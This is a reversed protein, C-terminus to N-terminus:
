FTEMDAAPAFGGDSDMGRRRRRRRKRTPDADGAHGDYSNRVIEAALVRTATQVGRKAASLAFHGYQPTYFQARDPDANGLTSARFTEGKYQFSPHPGATYEIGRRRAAELYEGAGSSQRRVENLVQRMERKIFASEAREPDLDRFSRPSYTRGQYHIELSGEPTRTGSVGAALLRERYEKPSASAKFAGSLVGHLQRRAAAEEYRSPSLRGFDKENFQQGRHRIEEGRIEIGRRALEQHYRDVTTSHRFAEALEQRLADHAKNEDFRLPDVKRFSAAPWTHGKYTIEGEAAGTGFAPSSVGAGQLARELAARQDAGAYARAMHGYADLFARNEEFREPSLRALAGRAPIDQKGWRVALHGEADKHYEIGSRRLLEEYHGRTGADRITHRLERGLDRSAVREERTLARFRHKDHEERAIGRTPDDTNRRAANEQLRNRVAETRLDKSLAEGPLAKEPGGPSLARYYYRGRQEELRVQVRELNARFEQESTSRRLVQYVQGMLAKRQRNEAFRAELALRSHPVTLENAGIRHAVGDPDKLHIAAFGDSGKELSVPTRQSSLRRELDGYSTAHRMVLELRGEAERKWQPTNAAHEKMKRHLGEWGNEKLAERHSEFQRLLAPKQCEEPLRSAKVVHRERRPDEFGYSFGAGREHIDVGRERLQERFTSVSTSMAAAETVRSELDLKWSYAPAGREAARLVGDPPREVGRKRNEPQRIGYERALEDNPDRGRIGSFSDDYKQGTIHSTANLVLHFHPNEKDFHVTIFYQHKDAIGIRRALEHAYEGIREPDAKGDPGALAGINHPQFSVITQYAQREKKGDAVHRQTPFQERVIRFQEEADKIDKAGFNSGFYVARESGDKAYYNYRGGRASNHIPLMKFVAM